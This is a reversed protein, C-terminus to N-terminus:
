EYVKEALTKFEFVFKIFDKVENLPLQTAADSKANEPDPHTEFFLGDIGLSLAAYAMPKIYERLGGSEKGLSPKQLSHTADYIVPMNYKKMELMGRM